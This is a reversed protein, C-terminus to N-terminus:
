TVKKLEVGYGLNRLVQAVIPGALTAIVTTSISVLEDNEDMVKIVHSSYLVRLNM